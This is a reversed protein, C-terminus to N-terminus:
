FSLMQIQIPQRRYCSGFACFRLYFVSGRVNVGVGVGVSVRVSVGCGFACFRLYFVSFLVCSVAFLVGFLSRNFCGRAGENARQQQQQQQQQAATSSSSCAINEM